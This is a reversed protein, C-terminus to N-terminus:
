ITGDRPISGLVGSEEPGHEVTQALIANLQFIPGSEFRRDYLQKAPLRM